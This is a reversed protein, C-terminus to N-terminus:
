SAPGAKAKIGAAMHRTRRWTTALAGLAIVALAILFTQGKWDWLPELCSVLCAVTLAFMRHPKAMPGSFDAPLGLSRGLERIYATLVALVACLWGLAAGLEYGATFAGYGAGALFLVDAFRDPLENWIPGYASGRGHEVAVMGDMMNALLRLQICAAALVLVVARAVPGLQGSACLLAGGLVALAVSSASILDPSIDAAAMRKALRGAWDAGRTKLPRRNETSTM